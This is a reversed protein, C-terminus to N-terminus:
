VRHAATQSEMLVKLPARLLARSSWRICFIRSKTSSQREIHSIRNSFKHVINSAKAIFPDVQEKASGV